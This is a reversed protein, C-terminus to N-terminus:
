AKVPWLRNRIHASLYAPNNVALMEEASRTFSRFVTFTASAGPPTPYVVYENAGFILRLEHEYQGAILTADDSPAISFLLVNASVLIGGTTASKKLVEHQQQADVCSWIANTLAGLDAPDGVTAPPVPAYYVAIHIPQTTGKYMTFDDAM